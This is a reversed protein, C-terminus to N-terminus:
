LHVAGTLDILVFLAAMIGFMAAAVILIRRVDAVVYRYEEAEEAQFAASAVSPGRTGTRPTAKPAASIGVADAAVSGAAVATPVSATAAPSPAGTPRSGSRQIARRQGPRGTAGRARKAM